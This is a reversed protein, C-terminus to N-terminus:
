KGDKKRVTTKRKKGTSSAACKQTMFVAISRSNVTIISNDEVSLNDPQTLSEILLSTDSIKVWKEGNSFKPLALKHPEWHMNYAIYFSADEKEPSAYCGNLVIGIMRGVYSLDPMWAEAGHYSIDPYGVGKYDMVRLEEKMHLIPHEKRLKILLKTYALIERSFLNNKWNVWGIENDQCYCNNNGGRSSAFEDGSFIFPIGQSLFVFSLANKIQKLRLDLVSKRRTNGEVGCNWTLNVDIGDRNNEGNGENHKREYSVCDYLSFGDFDALYNIVSYEVPNRRQYYIAQNLLGEDGKLFRRIDYRFNGNDSIFNKSIPNAIVPLDEEPLYNCWIKTNKLVPEEALLRFPIHFGNIRAGDIHYEMVWYKIVDLMYLQRIEPPFYFQMIVEIGNKHLERVLKKFSIVPSKIASYAAKPAFYFGNQFGWCNLRVTNLKEPATLNVDKMASAAIHATGRQRGKQPHNEEQLICEDYEYCPMLEIGTIGLEKFYPIKEIIGEFTGRNKVGSSKHMTFARVNLGYLISDEPPIMLPNDDQWDFEYNTFMGYTKRKQTKGAGWKELGCVVQAYPDTIIENDMYYNYTYSELDEGEIQIGYLVGRSGEAKFPVRQRGGKKDYLVVGCEKATLLYAALKVSNKAPFVGQKDPKFYTIKLDSSM